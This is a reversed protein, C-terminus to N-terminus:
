VDILKAGRRNLKNLEMRGERKKSVKANNLIDKSLKSGKETEIALPIKRVGRLFCNCANRLAGNTQIGIM